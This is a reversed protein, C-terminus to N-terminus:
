SAAGYIDTNWGNEAYQWNEVQEFNSGATRVTLGMKLWLNDTAASMGKAGMQAGSFRKAV